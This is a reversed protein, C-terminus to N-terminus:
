KLSKTDSNLLNTRIMRNTKVSCEVIDAVVTITELATGNARRPTIVVTYAGGNAYTHLQNYDTVGNTVPQGIVTNGDGFDWDLTATLGAADDIQISISAPHGACSFAAVDPEYRFWSAAFSPLGIRSVGDQGLFLNPLEYIKLDSPTNPNTVVYLYDTNYATVYIRGDSALQLGNVEVGFQFLQRPAASTNVSPWNLITELEYVFLKERGGVYLYQMSPSFEIGYPEDFDPSSEPLYTMYKLNSFQGTAPDFDGFIVKDIDDAWAFHKGDATFKIYGGSSSPIVSVSPMATVVPNNIQPGSSTVLWANLYVPTGRGPAVVWYDTGNAHLISTVSEGTIGSAGTFSINKQTSVVDGRGSRLSMDVVSYAPASNALGAYISVAIYKNQQGPYPLVIGSQASSNNGLLGTGNPMITNTRDWVTSGDSYFLLVGEDTSLTFCGEDTYIDSPIVTPLGTLIVDGGTTGGVPTGIANRTTNWTLGAYQGFLWNNAEKQAFVISGSLLMVLFLCYKVKM